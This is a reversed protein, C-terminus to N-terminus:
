KVTRRDARDRVMMAEQPRKQKRNQQGATHDDDELMHYDQVAATLEEMAHETTELYTAYAEKIQQLFKDHLHGFTSSAPLMAKMDEPGLGYTSPLLLSPVGMHRSRETEIRLVQRAYTSPGMGLRAAIDRLQTLEEGTLRISLFSARKQKTRQVEGEYGEELPSHTKWYEEEQEPSIFKPTPYKKKNM